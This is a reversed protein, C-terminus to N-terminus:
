ALNALITAVTRHRDCHARFESRDLLKTVYVEATVPYDLSYFSSDFKLNALPIPVRIGMPLSVKTGPRKKFYVRVERSGWGLFAWVKTKGRQLDYYMPVMMRGDTGLDPDRGLNQAWDAFLAANADAGGRTEMSTDPDLGLQRSVTVHAGHFLSEVERLEHGLARSAPGDPTLRRLQDLAPVGFTEELVM